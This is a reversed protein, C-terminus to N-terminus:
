QAASSKADKAHWGRIDYPGTMGPRIFPNFWGGQDQLFKLSAPYPRSVGTRAKAYWADNKEFVTLRPAGEPRRDPTTGAVFGGVEAKAVHAPALATMLVAACCWGMRMRIEM